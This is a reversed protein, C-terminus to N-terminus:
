NLDNLRRRDEAAHDGSLELLSSTLVGMASHVLNLSVNTSEDKAFSFSGRDKHICVV